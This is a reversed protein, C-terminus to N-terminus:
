AEPTGVEPTGADPISRPPRSSTPTGVGPTADSGCAVSVGGPETEIVNSADIEFPGPYTIETGEGDIIGRTRLSELFEDLTDYPANAFARDNAPRNGLAYNALLRHEAEEAGYQYAVKVLDPRGMETFAAIAAVQSGTEATEEAVVAAFFDAFVTLTTPPVTFTDYLSQGGASEFFDLHFQEQAQAAAVIAFLRDSWPIDFDGNQAAQLGAGLVTVGFTEATAIIDLINQLSESEQARARLFTSQATTFAVASVGVGAMLSRRSLSVTRLVEQISM